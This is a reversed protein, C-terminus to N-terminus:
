RRPLLYTVTRFIENVLDDVYDDVVQEFAHTGPECDAPNLKGQAKRLAAVRQQLLVAEDTMSRASRDCDENDM